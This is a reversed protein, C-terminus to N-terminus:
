FLGPFNSPTFRKSPFPELGWYDLSLDGTVSMTDYTINSLKFNDYEIEVFDTDGSLVTQIKFDVAKSVTRFLSIVQRSVNEITVKATVVGRDNESPLWVDVPLFLFEEGNSVTGYVAAEPLLQTPDTSIRVPEDMEDNSITILGILVQETEQAYAEQKFLDSTVATNGNGRVGAV